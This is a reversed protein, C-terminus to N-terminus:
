YYTTIIHIAAVLIVPVVYVLLILKPRFSSHYETMGAEVFADRAAPDGQPNEADWEKELKERRVSRSYLWVFVYVVTLFVFGIVVLRVFAM